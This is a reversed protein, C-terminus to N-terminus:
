IDYRRLFGLGAAPIDRTISRFAEDLSINSGKSLDEAIKIVRETRIHGQMIGNSTIGRSGLEIALSKVVGAIGLRISNSLVINPIAQKLKSSTIYILRSWGKEIMNPVVLKTLWVVSLLLTRVGVEWDEFSLEM